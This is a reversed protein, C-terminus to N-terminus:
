QLDHQYQSGLQLLIGVLIFTLGALKRLSLPQSEGLLLRGVSFNVLVKGTNVVPSVLSLPATALSYYYLVSGAQNSLLCVLYAPSRLLSLFYSTLSSNGPQVPPSVAKMLADTAGWLLATVLVLVVSSLSVGDPMEDWKRFTFFKNSPDSKVIDFKKM